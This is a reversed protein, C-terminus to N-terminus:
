KRAIPLLAATYRSIYTYRHYFIFNKPYISLFAPLKIKIKESFGGCQNEYHTCWHANEVVDYLHEEREEDEGANTKKIAM